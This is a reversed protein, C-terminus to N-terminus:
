IVITVSALITQQPFPKIKNDM